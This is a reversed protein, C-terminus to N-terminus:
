TGRAEAAWKKGFTDVYGTLTVVGNKVAVGIENPAIRADWKLALLVERQIHEDTQHAVAIVV